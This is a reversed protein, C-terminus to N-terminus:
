VESGTQEQQLYGNLKACDRLRKVTREIRKRVTKEKMDAWQAIEGCTQGHLYYAYLLKKDEESLNQMLQEMLLKQEIRLEPSKGADEAIEPEEELSVTNIRQKEKRLLDICTNDCLKKLYKRLVGSQYGYQAALKVIRDIYVFMRLQIEQMADQAENEGFYQRIRMAFMSNYERIIREFCLKQCIKMEDPQEQFSM